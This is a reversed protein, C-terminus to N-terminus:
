EKSFKEKMNKKLKAKDKQSLKKINESNIFGWAQKFTEEDDVEANV